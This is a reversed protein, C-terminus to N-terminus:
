QDFRFPDDALPDGSPAVIPYGYGARVSPTELWDVGRGTSITGIRLRGVAQAIIEKEDRNLYIRAAADSGFSRGFPGAQEQTVGGPNRAAREVMGAVVGRVDEPVTDETWERAPTGGYARVRASADSIRAEIQRRVVADDINDTALRDTVDEVAALRTM